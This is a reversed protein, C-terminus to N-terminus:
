AHFIIAERNVEIFDFRDFQGAISELHSVFLSELESNRANGTSILLLKHPRRHLLFSNVFDADKTVVVYGENLSLENIISDPTRNGLPLDLTHLAEHGAERLRAVLRRPLQADVLFKM